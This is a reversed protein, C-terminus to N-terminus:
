KKGSEGIRRFASELSRRVDQMKATEIGSRAIFIYDNGPKLRIGSTRLAEKMLRVARSRVVSGGVKKSAVFAKRAVDLGNNKCLVVVHRSGASKGKKYVADFDRQRRLVERKRM